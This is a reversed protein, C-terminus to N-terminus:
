EKLNRLFKEFRNIRYRVLNSASTGSTISAKFKEEAFLKVLKEKLRAKRIKGIDKKLNCFGIMQADYLAANISKNIEGNETFVRFAYGGITKNVREIATLFENKWKLLQDNTPKKNKECFSNLFGSLPKKYSPLDNNLSIFRIILEAGKMRKDNKFGSVEKWIPEKSLTDALEILPGHYIGHRLEQPNLKVAGTNLREFVDFKIQPHTDKLVAICRLTRHLIHRSIRPDLDDFFEGELEPYTTLGRLQFENNLYLKISQLRQNGDIVSLREDKEQNLYIVPIPCQIVLSEIFRSAQSRNWVYSRQFEPIFIEGSNLYEHVTGVTFDYTETHLKRKEPPIELISLDDTDTKIPFLKDALSKTRLRRAM